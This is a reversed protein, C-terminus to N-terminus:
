ESHCIRVWGKRTDFDPDGQKMLHTTRTLHVPSSTGLVAYTPLFVRERYLTSGAYSTYNLMLIPPLLALPVYHIAPVNAARIHMEKVKWMVASVYKRGTLCNVRLM